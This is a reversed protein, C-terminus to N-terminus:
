LAPANDLSAKLASEIDMVGSNKSGDVIPGASITEGKSKQEIVKMLRTSYADEYQKHNFSRSSMQKILQKAMDKEPKSVEIKACESEFTYLESGYFLQCLALGDGMPVVVALRERTRYFWRTVAAKKLEKMTKALLLYGKDAGKDPQLYYTKEVAQYNIQNEPVFEMLDMHNTKTPQASKIEDETIIVYQNKAVEFGKQTESRSIEENRVQDWLKQKVRQGSSLQNFRVSKDTSSPHIKVPINVLGFSITSSGIARSM